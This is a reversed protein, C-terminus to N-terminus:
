HVATSSCPIGVAVIVNRKMSEEYMETQYARAQMAASSEDYEASGSKPVCQETTAHTPPGRLVLAVHEGQESPTPLTLARGLLPGGDNLM